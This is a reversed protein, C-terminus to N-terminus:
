CAPNGEEANPVYIEVFDLTCSFQFRYKTTVFSHGRNFYHAIHQKWHVVLFYAPMNKRPDDTFDMRPCRPNSYYLM